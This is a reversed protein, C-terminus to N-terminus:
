LKKKIIILESQKRIIQSFFERLLKYDEAKFHVESISLKSQIFITNGQIECSFMYNGKNEPLKLFIKDPLEDIFYNEPITLNFTTIKSTPCGFDIPYKREESSFIQENDEGLLITPDFILGSSTQQLALKSTFDFSVNLPNYLSDTNAVSISDINLYSFKIKLYDNYGESSELKIFQRVNYANYHSFSQSVKGCFTGNENIRINFLSSKSKKEDNMLKIWKSDKLHILRGQNNLCEYPLTNYPLLPNCADILFDKGDIRALAITYNFKQYMAYYPHLGGNSRTSLIVPDAPIGAQRLMAIFIMNIEASNGREEKFVKRLSKTTLYNEVGNWSIKNSVFSHIKKLKSINDPLGKTLESTYKELFNVNQLQGGFDSRELLKESIKDYTPTFEQYRRNSFNVGVLEFELKLLHDKQGTIYPEETFAPINAGIWKDTHMTTSYGGFFVKESENKKAIKSFDGKIIGKYNFFDPYKATLESYKIPINSQFEWPIFEFLADTIYKYKYEIISGEYVNPFAIRLIRQYKNAKDVIFSKKSVKTEKITGNELNFTSAEVKIVKDSIGYPIEINAYEFGGKNIIKIRVDRVLEIQFNDGALVIEAHGCDSLIVADASPEPKYVKMELDARSIDGFKIDLNQSILSNVGITYITVLCFILKSIM